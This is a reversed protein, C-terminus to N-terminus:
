FLAANYVTMALDIGSFEASEPRPRASQACAGQLKGAFNARTTEM